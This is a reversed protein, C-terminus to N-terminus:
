KIAIDKQIAETKKLQTMHFLLGNGNWHYCCNKLCYDHESMNDPENASSECRSNNLQIKERFNRFENSLHDLFSQKTLVSLQNKSYHCFSSLFVNGFLTPLKKPFHHTKDINAVNPVM